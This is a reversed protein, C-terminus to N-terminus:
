PHVALRVVTQLAQLIEQRSLKSRGRVRDAFTIPVEAVSLGSRECRTVMEIQVSYGTSRVPRGLALDIARRGYCRFGATCDRSRLRLMSRAFLNAYRSLVRRGLGWGVISGGPVYRSGIVLDAGRDAAALLAPLRDPPHSFDADMTVVREVGHDKGQRFAHMYATGIGLKSPRSFLETQPNQEAWQRVLTGTGDQSADDIVMVRSQPAAVQVARLLGLINEAENFTPICVLTRDLGPSPVM